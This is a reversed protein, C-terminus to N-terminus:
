KWIGSERFRVTSLEAVESEPKAPRNISFLCLPEQRFLVATATIVGPYSILSRPKWLRAFRILACVTNVNLHLWGDPMKLAM